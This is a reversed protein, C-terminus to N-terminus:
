NVFQELRMKAILDHGKWTLKKGDLLGENKCLRVHDKVQAKNRYLLFKYPTGRESAELILRILRTERKM